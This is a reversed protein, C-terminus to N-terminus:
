WVGSRPDQFHFIYVSKEYKDFSALRFKSVSISLLFYSINLKENILKVEILKLLISFLAPTCTLTEYM